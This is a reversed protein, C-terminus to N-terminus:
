FAEHARWDNAHWISACCRSCAQHSDILKRKVSSDKKRKEAGEASMSTAQCPSSSFAFGLRRRPLPLPRSLPRTGRRARRLLLAQGPPQRRCHTRHSSSQLEPLGSGQVARHLSSELLQSCRTAARFSLRRHLQRCPRRWHPGRACSVAPNTNPSHRDRNHPRSWARCGMMQPIPSYGPHAEMSFILTVM